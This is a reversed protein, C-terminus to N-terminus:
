DLITRVSITKAGLLSAEEVTLEFCDIRISEGKEPHHELHKGLLEALTEKGTYSIHANFRENFDRVEMTGPFSREIVRFSKEAEPSYPNPLSHVNGFIEDLIDELTLIGQALGDDGLVVAIDQNNHRFQELIQLIKTHDALFWPPRSYDKINHYESVNLLDRASVVGVINRRSRLYIPIHSVKNDLLVKRLHGVSSRSPVMPIEHSPIMVQGATKSRFSFINSVITGLTDLDDSEEPTQQVEDREEFIRQLEERTLYIDSADQSTGGIARNVLKAILGILWTIPKMLRSSAYVIPTGLMSVHEAYHRAAFMPALEAFILVFLVQTIPALDPSLNLSYYFQRSCESGIQLAINVGLLTTGFLRSPNQMLFDLWIAPKNGKSVYYQLRIKNFSVSAMEMMSYFGQVLICVVTLALWFFPSDGM